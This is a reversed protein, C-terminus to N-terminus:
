QAGCVLWEGTSNEVMYTRTALDFSQLEGNYSAVIKGQCTVLAKDGDTGTQACSLGELTTSVAQFSDLEMLATPEWDACSLTSLRTSDKENLANLYAEVTKEPGASSTGCASVLLCLASLLILTARKM